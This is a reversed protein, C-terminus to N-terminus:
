RWDIIRAKDPALLDVDKNTCVLFAYLNVEGLLDNLVLRVKERRFCVAEVM